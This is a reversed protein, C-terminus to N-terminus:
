KPLSKVTELDKIDPAVFDNNITLRLNRSAKDYEVKYNFFKFITESYIPIDYVIKNRYIDVHVNRPHSWLLKLM